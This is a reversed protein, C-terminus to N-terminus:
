YFVHYVGPLTSNVNSERIIRESINGDVNDYAVAGLENYLAGVKLYVVADGNPKITPSITDSLPVGLSTTNTLSSTTDTTSTTSLSTDTNSTTTNTTGTQAYLFNIGIGSLFLISAIGALFIRINKQM